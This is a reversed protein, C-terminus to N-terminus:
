GLEVIEDRPHQPLRAIRHVRPIRDVVFPDIGLHHDGVAGCVLDGLADVAGLRDYRRQFLVDDGQAVVDVALRGCEVLEGV